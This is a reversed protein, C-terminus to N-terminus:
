SRRCLHQVEGARREGPEAYSPLNYAGDTLSALTDVAELQDDDYSYFGKEMDYVGPSISPALAPLM